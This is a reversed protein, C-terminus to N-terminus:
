ILSRCGDRALGVNCDDRIHTGGPAVYVKGDVKGGFAKWADVDMAATQDRGM